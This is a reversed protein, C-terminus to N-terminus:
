LRAPVVQNSEVWEWLDPSWSVGMPKRVPRSPSKSRKRRDVMTEIGGQNVLHRCFVASHTQRSFINRGRSWRLPLLQLIRAIM